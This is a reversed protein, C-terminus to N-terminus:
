RIVYRGRDSPWDCTVLMAGPLIRDVTRAGLLSMFEDLCLNTILITPLMQCYRADIIDFFSLLESQTGTGIGIEDFIAMDYWAFDELVGEETQKSDSRWTSRIRRIAERATSYWVRQKRDVLANAIAVALHTKGTGVGGMLVMNTSISGPESLYSVYRTVAQLVARKRDTDADFGDLSCHTFRPTWNGYAYRTKDEDDDSM